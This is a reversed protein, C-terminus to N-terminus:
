VVRRGGVYGVCHPCGEPGPRGFSSGPRPPTGRWARGPLRGAQRSWIAWSRRPAATDPHDRLPPQPHSHGGRRPHRERPYQRFRGCGHTYHQRGRDSTVGPANRYDPLRVDQSDGAGTVFTVADWSVSLYEASDLRIAGYPTQDYEIDSELKLSSLDTKPLHKLRLYNFYDYANWWGLVAFDESARCSSTAARTSSTSLKGAPCMM